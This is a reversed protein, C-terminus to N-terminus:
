NTPDCSRSGALRHRGCRLRELDLHDREVPFPQENIGVLNLADGADVPQGNRGARRDAELERRRADHVAEQHRLDAALDVGHRPRVRPELQLGVAGHQIRLTQM